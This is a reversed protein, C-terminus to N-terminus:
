NAFLSLIQSSNSIFFIVATFGGIYMWFYRQMSNLKETLREYQSIRELRMVDLKAVVQMDEDHMTEYVKALAEQLESRRLEISDHMSGLDKEQQNIRQEHVALLTNLDTSVGTLKELARELRRDHPESCPPVITTHASGSM